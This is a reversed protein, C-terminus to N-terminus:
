DNDEDTLISVNGLDDLSAFSAEEHTSGSDM